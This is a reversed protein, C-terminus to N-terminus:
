PKVVVTFTYLNNNENSEKVNKDDDLSLTIKSEGVPLYVQTRIMRIRTDNAGSDSDAFKVKHQNVVESGIRLRDTFEGLAVVGNMPSGYVIYLMNFAYKNGSQSFSDAKTLEIKQGATVYRSNKNLPTQTLVNNGFYLAPRCSIDVAKQAFAASAGFVLAVLLLAGCNLVITMHKQYNKM